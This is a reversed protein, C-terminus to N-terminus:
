YSVVAFGLFDLIANCVAFNLNADSQQFVTGQKSDQLIVIWQWEANRKFSIETGEADMFMEMLDSLAEFSEFPSPVDHRRHRPYKSYNNGSFVDIADEMSM